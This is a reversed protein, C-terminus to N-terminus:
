RALAADEAAPTAEVLPLARDVVGHPGYLVVLDGAELV